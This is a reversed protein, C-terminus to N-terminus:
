GPGPAAPCGPFVRPIKQYEGLRLKPVAVAVQFKAATLPAIKAKWGEPDDPFTHGFDTGGAIHAIHRSLTSLRDVLPEHPLRGRAAQTFEDCYWATAQKPTNFRKWLEDGVLAHDVLIAQANSVKDAHSM